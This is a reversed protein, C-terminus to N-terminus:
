DSVKVSSKPDERTEQHRKEMSPSWMMAAYELRPCMMSVILQTLMDVDMYTFAVRVNRLQNYTQAM